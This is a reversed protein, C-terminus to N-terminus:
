CGDSKVSLFSLQSFHCSNFYNFLLEDNNMDSDQFSSYIETKISKQCQRALISAYIPDPSFCPPRPDGQGSVPLRSSTARNKGGIRCQTPPDVLWRKFAQCIFLIFCAAIIRGRSVRGCWWGSSYLTVSRGVFLYYSISLLIIIM